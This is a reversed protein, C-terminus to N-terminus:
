AQSTPESFRGRLLLRNPRYIAHSRDRTETPPFPMIISHRKALPAVARREAAFLQGPRRPQSGFIPGTAEPTLHLPTTRAPPTRGSPTMCCARRSPYSADRVNGRCADHEVPAADATRRGTRRPVPHKIDQESPPPPNHRWHKTRDTSQANPARGSSSLQAASCSRPSANRTRTPPPTPPRAPRTPCPRVPEASM